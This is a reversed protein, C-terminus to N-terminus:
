SEEPEEWDASLDGPIELGMWTQPGSYRAKGRQRGGEKGEKRRRGPSLLGLARGCLSLEPGHVKRGLRNKATHHISVVGPGADRQDERKSHRTTCIDRKGEM